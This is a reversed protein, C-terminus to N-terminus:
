KVVTYTHTHTCTHPPGSKQMKTLGTTLKLIVNYWPTICYLTATLRYPNQGKSIYTLLNGTYLALLM